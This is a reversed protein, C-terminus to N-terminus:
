ASIVVGPNKQNVDFFGPPGPAVSPVNQMKWM